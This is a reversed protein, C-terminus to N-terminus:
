VAISGPGWIACQMGARALWGGDTAYSASVTKDQGVLDCLARYIRAKEDLLMPPAEACAVVEVPDDGAAYNCAAVIRHLM